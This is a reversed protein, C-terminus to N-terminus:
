SDGFRRIVDDSAYAWNCYAIDKVAKCHLDGGQPKWFSRGKEGAASLKANADFSTWLCSRVCDVSGELCVRLVDKDFCVEGVCEIGNVTCSNCRREEVVREVLIYMPEEVKGVAARSWEKDSTRRVADRGDDGRVSSYALSITKGGVCEGIASFISDEIFGFTRIWLNGEDGDV